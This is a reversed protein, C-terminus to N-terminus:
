AAVKLLKIAEFHRVGGGVRKTTYFGVNPKNSYPDRLVRVQLKDVIRYGRNFNGYAIPFANAAVDPMYDDQYVPQGLITAPNGAQFSPQWLYGEGTSSKFKRVLSLTTGNMLFAAGPRYQTKLAGQLDILVDAPDSAPFAAAEGTKVFGIKGWAYSGNAVTEYSLIGRAKAVGNGSIFALGEMEGFAIGVEEALWNEVNVAADDLMQQTAQPNAYMEYANTEIRALEPGGTAPRAETEGVWGGAAGSKTVFEVVNNGQSIREVRALMRMPSMTSAVRDIEPLVNDPVLYGGEPDSQVSAARFGSEDGARMYAGFAASRPSENMGGGLHLKNLSNEISGVREIIAQNKDLDAAIREIKATLDAIGKTDGSEIKALREDQAKQFRAWVEKQEEIAKMIEDPM